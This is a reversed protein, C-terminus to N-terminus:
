ITLWSDLNVSDFGAMFQGNQELIPRKIASTKTLLFTKLTNLDNLSQKTADDLQKYTLGQKNLVVETGLVKIFTDLQEKALGLKKYDHFEFPIGKEKLYDFTKKMTNCNAIGYIKLM